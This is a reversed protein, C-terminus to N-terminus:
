ATNGAHVTLTTGTINKAKDSLLFEVAAAPDLRAHHEDYVGAWRDGYFAPDDFGAVGAVWASRPSPRWRNETGPGADARCRRADAWDRARAEPAHYSAIRRRAPHRRLPGPRKVPTASPPM